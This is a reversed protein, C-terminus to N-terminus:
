TTFFVGNSLSAQLDDPFADLRAIAVSGLRRQGADFCTGEYFLLFSIGRLANSPHRPPCGARAEVPNSFGEGGGRPSKKSQRISLSAYANLPYKMPLKLAAGNGETREAIALWNSVQTQSTKREAIETAASAM